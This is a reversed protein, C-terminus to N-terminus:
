DPHNKDIFRALDSELNSFQIRVAKELINKLIRANAQRYICLIKESELLMLCPRFVPRQSGFVTRSGSCSFHSSIACDLDSFVPFSFHYRSIGKRIQEETENLFVSARINLFSLFSSAQDLHILFRLVSRRSSDDLVILLFLPHRELPSGSAASWPGAPSSSRTKYVSSNM